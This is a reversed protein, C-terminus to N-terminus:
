LSSINIITPGSRGTMHPVAARVTRVASFLTADFIRQWQEDTFDIVSGAAESLAVNNVLVDIGGYTGVAEDILEVPGAQTGCSDAPSLARIPPRLQAFPHRGPSM